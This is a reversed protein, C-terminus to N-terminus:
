ECADGGVYWSLVQLTGDPMEQLRVTTTTGNVTSCVDFIGYVAEGEGGGDGGGQGPPAPVLLGE